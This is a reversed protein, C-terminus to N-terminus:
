PKIKKTLFNEEYHDEFWGSYQEKVSEICLRKITERLLVNSEENINYVDELYQIMELPTEINDPYLGRLIKSM